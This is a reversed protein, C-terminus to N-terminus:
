NSDGFKKDIVNKGIKRIKVLTKWVKRIISEEGALAPDSHCFLLPL